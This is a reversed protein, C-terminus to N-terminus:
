EIGPLYWQGELPPNAGTLPQYNKRPISTLGGLMDITTAGGDGQLFVDRIRIDFQQTTGSNVSFFKEGETGAETFGVRCPNGGTNRVVFFRTVNPFEIKQASSDGVVLSGTVWPAGSVLYEPVHNVGPIGWGAAM